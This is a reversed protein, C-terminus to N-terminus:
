RPSRGDPGSEHDWAERLMQLARREATWASRLSVGLRAALQRLSHSDFPGLGFRACIVEREREPLQRVLRRVAADRQRGVLQEYVDATPDVLEEVQPTRM